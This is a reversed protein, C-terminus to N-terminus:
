ISFIAWVILTTSVSGLAIVAIEFIRDEFMMVRRLLSLDGAVPKQNLIPLRLQDQDVSTILALVGTRDRAKSSRIMSGSPRMSRVRWSAAVIDGGQGLGHLLASGALSAPISLFLNALVGASPDHHILALAFVQM